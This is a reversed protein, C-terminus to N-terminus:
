MFGDGEDLVPVLEPAKQCMPCKKNRVKSSRMWFIINYREGSEIPMAGHLQNGLHLVGRGIDHIFRIISNVDYCDRNNLFFLEGGTFVNGVCINLTIESNDFHTALELDQGEKYHVTFAKQSDLDKGGWDAYFINSIQSVINRMSTLFDDFGIENLLIGYKNMTNPREKPMASNEFHNIEEIFDQCFKRTFVPFSYIRQEKSVVDIYKLMQELNSKKAAEVIKLFRTDFFTNDLTYLYANMPSYNEAIFKRREISKKDFDLRRM